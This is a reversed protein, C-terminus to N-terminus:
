FQLILNDNNGSSFDGFQHSTDVVEIWSSTKTGQKPKGTCTRQASPSKQKVATEDAQKTKGRDRIGVM